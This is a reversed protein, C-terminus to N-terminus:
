IDQGASPSRARAARVMAWGGFAMALGIGLPIGGFLLILGIGGSNGGDQFMMQLFAASCLGALGAILVGVVIMVWGFFALVPNGTTSM